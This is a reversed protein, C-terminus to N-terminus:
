CTLNGFLDHLITQLLMTHKHGDLIFFIHKTLCHKVIHITLYHQTPYIKLRGEEAILQPLLVKVTLYLNLHLLAFVFHSTRLFAHLLSFSLTLM